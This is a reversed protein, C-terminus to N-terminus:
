TGGDHRESFSSRTESACQADHWDRWFQEEAEFATADVVRPRLKAVDSVPESAFIWRHAREALLRQLGRTEDASFAFRPAAKSGIKTYLLHKPSIPLILETGRSGWGGDFDYANASHYNLRLTPHDSTIWELGAAPHAISWKHEALGKAVSNLLHRIQWLWM